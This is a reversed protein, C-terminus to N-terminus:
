KADSLEEALQNLTTVIAEVEDIVHHIEETKEMQMQISDVTETTGQSVEKMSLKTQNATSNLLEM